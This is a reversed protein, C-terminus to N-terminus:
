TPNLLMSTIFLTIAMAEGFEAGILRVIWSPLFLPSSISIVLPLLVLATIKVSLPCMIKAARAGSVIDPLNCALRAPETNLGSSLSSFPSSYFGLGMGSASLTM